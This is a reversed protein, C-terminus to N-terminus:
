IENLLAAVERAVQEEHEKDVPAEDEVMPPPVRKAREEVEQVRAVLALRVREREAEERALRRQDEREEREARFRRREELRADEAERAAVRSALRLRARETRLSEIRWDKAGEARIEHFRRAGEISTGVFCFDTAMQKDQVIMFDVM